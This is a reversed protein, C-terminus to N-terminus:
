RDIAPLDAGHSDFGREGQLGTGQRYLYRYPRGEAEKERLEADLPPYYITDPVYHPFWWTKLVACVGIAIVQMALIGFTGTAAALVKVFSTAGQDLGPLWLDAVALVVDAFVLLGIRNRQEEARAKAAVHDDHYKLLFASQERLALKRFENIPVWGLARQYDPLRPSYLLSPLIRVLLHMVGGVCAGLTPLVFAAFFSAGAVSAIVLGWHSSLAELSASWSLLGKQGSYLLALDVLLAGFVLRLAWEAEWVKEILSLGLSSVLKSDKSQAEGISM